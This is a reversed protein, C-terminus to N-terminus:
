EPRALHRSYVDLYRTDFHVCSVDGIEIELPDSEWEGISSVCLLSISEADIQELRGVWYEPEPLYEAEVALLRTALYPSAIAAVWDSSDVDPLNQPVLEIGEAALLREFFREHEDSRIESIDSLRYIRYGDTRFQDPAIERLLVLNSSSAVPVGHSFPAAADPRELRILQGLQQAARLAALVPSEPTPAGQKFIRLDM